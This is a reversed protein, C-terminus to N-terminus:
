SISSSSSSSQASALVARCIFLIVLLKWTWVIPVIPVTSRMEFGSSGNLNVHYEFLSMNLRPELDGPPRLDLEVKQNLSFVSTKLSGYFIKSLLVNTAHRTKKQWEHTFAFSAHVEQLISSQVAIKFNWSLLARNKSHFNRLVVSIRM